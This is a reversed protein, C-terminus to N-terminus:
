TSNISAKINLSILTNMSNRPIIDYDIYVTKDFHSALVPKIANSYSDSITLANIGTNNGFDYIVEASDQGFFEKYHNVTPNSDEILTDRYKTRNGFEDTSTNNVQITYSPLNYDLECITDYHEEIGDSLSGYFCVNSCYSNIPKKEHGINPLSSSLM